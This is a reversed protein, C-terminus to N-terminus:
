LTKAYEEILKKYFTKDGKDTTEKIKRYDLKHYSSKSLFESMLKADYPKELYLAMQLANYSSLEPMASMESPFEEKIMWLFKHFVFYDILCDYDKWYQYLMDRAIMLLKNNSYATVFWSSFGKYMGDEDEKYWQLFLDSDIIDKPFHSDTFLVTSDIWTGGYKILLELRVLDTYCAYPIIGKHCKEEIYDPLTIFDEQNENTILVFKKGKVCRQQSKLCVKVLLPAKDYGQMWSSFITDNKKHELQMNEYKAALEKLLPRYQRDLIPAVKLSVGPYADKLPRKSFVVKIVEKIFFPLLGLRAYAKIMRFGGFQKFRFVAKKYELM